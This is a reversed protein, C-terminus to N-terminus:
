LGTFNASHFISDAVLDKKKEFDQDQNYMFKKDSVNGGYAVRKLVIADM